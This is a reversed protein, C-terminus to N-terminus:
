KLDVHEFINRSSMLLLIKGREIAENFLTTDGFQIIHNKYPTGAQSVEHSRVHTVGDVNLHPNSVKLEVMFEADSM